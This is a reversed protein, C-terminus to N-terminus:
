EEEEENNEEGEEKGEQCDLGASDEGDRGTHPSHSPPLRVPPPCRRARQGVPSPFSSAAPRRRRPPLPCRGSMRRSGTRM